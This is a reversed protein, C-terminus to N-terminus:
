SAKWSRFGTRGRAPSIRRQGTFQKQLRWLRWYNWAVVAMSVIALLPWVQGILVGMLVAALYLALLQAIARQWSQHSSM